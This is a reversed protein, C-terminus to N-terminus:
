RPSLLLAGIHTSAAVFIIIATAMHMRRKKIRDKLKPRRLQLGLGAHAVLMGFGVCAPIMALMGGGIAGPAGVMPLVVGTHLFCIVCVALGIVVHLRTGPADPPPRKGLRVRQVLPVAAATVILAISTWGTVASIV